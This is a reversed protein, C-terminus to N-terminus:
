RSSEKTPAEHSQMTQVNDAALASTIRTIDETKLPARTLSQGAVTVTTPEGTEGTDVRVWIRRRRITLSATLGVLLMVGALLSIDKGPDYAIQFNAFRAVRDFTIEGANNPLRWTDGVALARALPQGERDSFQRMRDTKLEFVSQPAGSDLGLNGVYGTLFLQPNLADPFASYPGEPGTRATPLFLGEFGVQSPLAGPVKIVGDSAYSQDIPLFIVPGSFAVAGNGDRVTVVPAYGHGTLFAKTENINLPHNPKVTLQQPSNDVGGTVYSLDATFSRPEGRKPGDTAFEAGFDELTFSFPELEDTNTWASPTFADYSTTVNTFTEGEALAVRGEFGYLRGGAIGFLLVLLSLHFLLNGVERLYGREARIEAGAVVVRYRRRRLVAAATVILDQPSQDPRAQWRVHGEMRSLNRPAATPPTRSARWLRACRPLVCGTMSVLLLLYIAAFWPASYVEFLWLRDLWPFLDPHEVAFTTVAMPDSAVGRQPLLSGPIAAVAVLALLVVATRMSTLNRWMWRGWGWAPPKNTTPAGGAAANERRATSMNM